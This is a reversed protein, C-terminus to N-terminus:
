RKSILARNQKISSAMDVKPEPELKFTTFNIRLTIENTDDGPWLGRELPHKKSNKNPEAGM